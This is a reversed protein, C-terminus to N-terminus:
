ARPGFVDEAAEGGGLVRVVQALADVIPISQPCLDLCQGCAVCATAPRGRESRPDMKAYRKRVASVNKGAGVENVLAFNGPIDVGNPCPMCYECATCHVLIRKAFVETVRALTEREAATLSDVGSAAASAVNERVMQESGMGSLVCAVQPLDWLFQLAWDVPTRQVPAVRMIDLVDAAPRALAGGHLPEMIVVAVGKSAAYELGATTAQVGTDMYNYQIQCMEWPYHDIIEKFVPYKDHFSFGFHRILGSDRAEEMKRILGLEKVTEFRRKNLAHFLYLDLHDTQLRGLQERLFRDFDEAKRV